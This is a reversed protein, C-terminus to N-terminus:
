ERGANQLSGERSLSVLRFSYLSQEKEFALVDKKLIFSCICQKM